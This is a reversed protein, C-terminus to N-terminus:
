LHRSYLVLGASYGFFTVYAYLRALKLSSHLFLVTMASAVSLLSKVGKEESLRFM